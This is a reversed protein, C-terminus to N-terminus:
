VKHYLFTNVTLLRLVIILVTPGLAPVLVPAGTHRPYVVPMYYDLATYYDTGM